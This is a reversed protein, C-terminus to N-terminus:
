STMNLDGCLGNPRMPNSGFSHITYNEKWYLNKLTLKTRHLMIELCKLKCGHSILVGKQCNSKRCCKVRCLVRPFWVVCRSIRQVTCISWYKSLWLKNQSEASFRSMYWGVDNRHSIPSVKWCNLSEVFQWPVESSCLFRVKSLTQVLSCMITDVFSFSKSFSNWGSLLSSPSLLRTWFVLTMFTSTSDM